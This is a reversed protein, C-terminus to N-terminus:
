NIEFGHLKGEWMCDDLFYVEIAFCKGTAKEVNRSRVFELFLVSPYGDAGSLPRRLVRALLRRWLSPKEFVPKGDAYIQRIITSTGGHNDQATLREVHFIKNSRAFVTVVDGVSGIISHFDLTSTKM